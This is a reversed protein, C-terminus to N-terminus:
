VLLLHLAQGALQTLNHVLYQHRLIFAFQRVVLVVAVGVGQELVLHLPKGM